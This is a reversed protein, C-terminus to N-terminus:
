LSPTRGIGRGAPAEVPAAADVAVGLPVVIFGRRNGEAADTRAARATASAVDTAAPGAPPQGRPKASMGSSCAGDRADRSRLPSPWSQELGSGVERRLRRELDDVVVDDGRRLRASARAAPAATARAVPPARLPPPPAHAAM